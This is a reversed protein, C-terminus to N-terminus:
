TQNFQMEEQMLGIEILDSKKVFWPQFFFRREQWNQMSNSMTFFFSKFSKVTYKGDFYHM